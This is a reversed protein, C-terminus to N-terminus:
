GGHQETKVHMQLRRRENEQRIAPGIRQMCYGAHENLGSSCDTRDLERWNRVLLLRLLRLLRRVQCFLPRRPGRASSGPMETYNYM